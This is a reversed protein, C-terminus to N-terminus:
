TNRLEHREVRIVPRLRGVETTVAKMATQNHPKVSLKM